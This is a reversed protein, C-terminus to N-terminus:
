YTVEIGREVRRANSSCTNYGRSKIYTELTEKYGDIPFKDKYTKTVTVIACYPKSGEVQSFDFGFVSTQNADGGGGIMTVATSTGSIPNGDTMVFKACNITRPVGESTTAFYSGSIPVSDWYIACELGADAAYFAYQSERGLSASITSRVAINVAAFSIFLLIGMIVIAVFLSMGGSREAKCLKAPCTKKFITFQLNFITKMM